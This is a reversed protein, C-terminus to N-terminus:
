ATDTPPQQEGSDAKAETKSETSEPLKQGQSLLAEAPTATAMSSTINNRVKPPDPWRIDSINIKLLKTNTKEARSNLIVVRDEEMYAIDTNVPSITPTLSEFYQQSPQVHGKGMASNSIYAWQDLWMGYTHPGRPGYVNVVIPAYQEFNITTIALIKSLDAKNDLDLGMLDMRVTHSVDDIDEYVYSYKYMRNTYEHDMNSLDLKFIWQLSLHTPVPSYSLWDIDTFPDMGWYDMIVSEDWETWSDVMDKVKVYQIMDGFLQIYTSQMIATQQVSDNQTNYGSWAACTVNSSSLYCATMASQSVALMHIWAAVGSSNTFHLVVNEREFLGLHISLRRMSDCTTTHYKFTTKEPDRDAWEVMNYALKITSIVTSRTKVVGSPPQHYSSLGGFNFGVLKKRDNNDGDKALFGGCIRTNSDLRNDFDNTGDVLWAGCAHPDDELSYCNNSPDIQVMIGPRNVGYLEAALASAIRFTKPTGVTSTLERLAGVLSHKLNPIESTKWCRSWLTDMPTPTNPQIIGQDNEELPADAWPVNVGMLVVGEPTRSTSSMDTIVLLVSDPAPIVVSNESPMLTHVSTKQPFNKLNSYEGYTFHNVTGAWWHSHVFSFIYPIISRNSLYASRVPVVSWDKDIGQRQWTVDTLECVGKQWALFKDVTIASINAKPFSPTSTIITFDRIQENMPMDWKSLRSYRRAFQFDVPDNLHSQEDLSMAMCMLRLHASVERTSGSTKELTDVLSMISTGDLLMAGKVISGLTGTQTTDKLRNAFQIYMPSLAPKEFQDWTTTSVARVPITDSSFMRTAHVNRAPRAIDTPTIIEPTSTPPEDPQAPTQTPTEAGDGSLMSKYTNYVDHKISADRLEEMIKVRSGGITSHIYSSLIEFHRPTYTSALMDFYKPTPLLNSSTSEPSVMGQNILRPLSELGMGIVPIRTGEKIIKRLKPDKTKYEKDVMSIKRAPMLARQKKAGPDTYTAFSCLYSRSLCNFSTYTQSTCGPQGATDIGCPLSQIGTLTQGVDFPYDIVWESFTKKVVQNYYINDINTWKPGDTQETQEKESNEPQKKDNSDMDSRHVTDILIDYIDRRARLCFRWM